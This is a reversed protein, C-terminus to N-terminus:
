ASRELTAPQLAPLLRQPMSVEVCRFRLSVEWGNSLLIDHRFTPTQGDPEDLDLEDYLYQPYPSCEGPPLVTQIRPEGLLSYDLVVLHVTDLEPELTLVFREGDRHMSTVHADHLLVQEYLRFIQPLKPRIAEVHALYRVNADEWREHTALFEARDDTYFAMHLEPTFFKM